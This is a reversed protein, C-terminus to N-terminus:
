KQLSKRIDQNQKKHQEIYSSEGCVSLLKVLQKKLFSLFPLHASLFHPLSLPHSFFKLDRHYFFTSFLIQLPIDLKNAWLYHRRVIKNETELVTLIECVDKKEMIPMGFSIIDQRNEKKLFQLILETQTYQRRHYIIFNFLHQEDKAYNCATGECVDCGACAVQEGGLADLLVQRRCTTSEAFDALVRERSGKTFQQAKKSDLPSWLLIARAVSRDRGGRGAEQIYAEATTPPDYHIVTHIDKKDVGMGFACTCVLIGEKKPYFWKETTAKEEKSLGAHYWRVFDKKGIMEFYERLFTAIGQVRKRSSCFVLLPTKEQLVTELLAYQKACAYKVYYRINPRDSESRVIHASGDFLVKSIRNLVSPSATATFATVVPVKLKKIIAGLTLYAPRFTDGWESVCHAEDIAIHSINCDKLRNLLEESQLVEPNALIYKAGEKIREFNNEREAKTQQGKFVVPPTGGEKMRREQDSMLALLPYLILTPGPLLLAPVMFCLSKGAGTPLLVIQNHICDKTPVGNSAQMDNYSDLVNAIVLRQWPFLSSIGFTNLAVTEMPNAVTEGLPEELTDILSKM